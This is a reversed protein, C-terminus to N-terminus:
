GMAVKLLTTLAIVLLGWIRIDMSTVKREVKNMRDELASHRAQCQKEPVIGNSGLRVEVDRLREAHNDLRQKNETVSM